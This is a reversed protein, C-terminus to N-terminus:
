LVPSLWCQLVTTSYCQLVITSYCQLKIFVQYFGTLILPHCSSYSFRLLPPARLQDLCRPNNQCINLGQGPAVEQHSFVDNDDNHTVRGGARGFIWHWTEWRPKSITVIVDCWMVDCWMVDTRFIVNEGQLRGFPRAHHPPTPPDCDNTMESTLMENYQSPSIALYRSPTRGVSVRASQSSWEPLLKYSFSNQQHQHLSVQGLRSRPILYGGFLHGSWSNNLLPFVGLIHAHVDCWHFIFVDGWRPSRMVIRTAAICLM